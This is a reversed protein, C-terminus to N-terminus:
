QNLPNPQNDFADIGSNMAIKIDGAHPFTAAAASSALSCAMVWFKNSPLTISIIENGNDTWTCYPALVSGSLRLFVGITHKEAIPVGTTGAIVANANYAAGEGLRYGYGYVDGGLYTSLTTAVCDTRVVGISVSNLLGAVSDSWVHFEAYWIGVAKPQTSFVTRNFDLANQYTSVQNLSADLFLGPGM